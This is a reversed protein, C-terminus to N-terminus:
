IVLVLKTILGDKTIIRISYYGKAFPNLQNVPIINEGSNLEISRASIIKGFADILQMTSSLNQKALIRVNFLGSTPNPHVDFQSINELQQTAVLTVNIQKTFSKVCGRANTIVLTVDYNGSVNYSHVPNASNDEPSGDGFDWSYTYNGTLNPSFSSQNGIFNHTFDVDEIFYQIPSFSYDANIPDYESWCDTWNSDDFAGVYTTKDFFNNLKTFDAGTLAPSGSQLTADPKIGYPDELKLDSIASFIRNETLFLDSATKTQTSTSDFLKGNNSLINNSLNIEKTTRYYNECNTGELRVGTPFGALISNTVSQKTSRRLHMARRFNTNFVSSANQRPGILTVNSFVAQSQPQNTTGTADNDAEFGNSGSIDALNPDSIGYLFQNNGRYGFDTDFMDDITKYALLYKGDVTGGFWEFADDGGFSTQVHEISTQSGVGGLTLSNTENNPQFAIGAFEIRVYELIGSNDNDDTGGYQGLVPDLGGEITTFGAPNNIKAKGLLLLGGWDGPARSGAPKASTFVIPKDIEGIAIIKSGRTIVLAAPSGKVITGAEITLTANNKVYIFPAGTLNYINNSTWKTDTTIDTTVGIEKAGETITITKTISKVCSRSTTITLVVKFNGLANYTHSPNQQTSSTFDGFDWRYTAGAITTTNYQVINKDVVFTFDSIESVYDIGKSYNANNADWECWCKSWDSTGMAGVYTTTQAAAPMNSFNAGILAPSGTKPLLNPVNASPDTLSLGSLNAVTRNTALISDRIIPSNVSTSDMFTTYGTFINNRIKMELTTLFSNESNGSEIRVATPFGTIISNRVSERTSRRLHMGRRYNTNITTASDIKPGVITVNTFVSQSIPANTSGTADNDAEFGNSGSIDAINPDSIGIVFQNTGTYGFDTDFMDDLVKNAVLYKGNVTGGFWEFGDDGGHSVQVYSIDTQSGVGGLTLGNTENNPQFAIGAFEIRVYRLVGSNDADDTGGYQGLVPDLGGEVTAFGAPNNVKAKGLLLLGGWDGANRQGAPKASTFVIPKQVTGIANIKSGRTFVLAAPNGRIITGPDITVTADNVVYIFNTGSLEYINDATWHADASINATIQIVNQAFVFVPLSLILISLFRKM